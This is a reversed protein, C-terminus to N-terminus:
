ETLGYGFPFLSEDEGSGLPLQDTSVPWTVPLKGSFPVDGFLVDVVGQGETGPLWVAVLADWEELRETIILPRGSIMIVALQECSQEMKNLAKKDALSIDPKESDGQGEAYPREGVVALCLSPSDEYTKPFVGGQNVIVQTETSVTAEIAELITTGVTIEGEGGQWFITWGGSQIGIDDYASGGIYLYPVDKAIPFIAEENKLLVVSKAVAERAVERHADSGVLPLLDPNSYQTEFLNLTFKVRLIRRVADDIREMSIDGNEVAKVMAKRFKNYDHPVMNMDVGANIAAVVATYYDIDIQDIGAWDSVVFGEFGLEGKLVDTIWYKQGHMKEGNWSSYSIMISKAGNEIASLYPVLHLARM